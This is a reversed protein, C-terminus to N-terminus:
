EGLAQAREQSSLARPWIGVNRMSGSFQFRPVRSWEFDGLYAGISLVGGQTSLDQAAGPAYAGEQGDVFIRLGEQSRIALVSHWQGDNIARATEASLVYDSDSTSFAVTGESNMKLEFWRGSGWSGGFLMTGEEQSSTRVMMSASFDRAGFDFQRFGHAAIFNYDSFYIAPSFEFQGLGEDRAGAMNQLEAYVQPQEPEGPLRGWLELLALESDPYYLADSIEPQPLEITENITANPFDTSENITANPLITGNQGLSPIEDPEPKEEPKPKEFPLTSPGEEPKPIEEPIIGPEPAEEPIIEPKEDLIPIAEPIEQPIAEKPTEDQTITENTAEEEPATQPITQQNAEDQPEPILTLNESELIELLTEQEEEKEGFLGGLIGGDGTEARTAYGDIAVSSRPYLCSISFPSLGSFNGWYTQNLFCESDNLEMTIDANAGTASLFLTQTLSEGMEVIKLLPIGSLSVSGALLVLLLALAALAERNRGIQDGLASRM